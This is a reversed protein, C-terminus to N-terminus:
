GASAQVQDLGHLFTLGPWRVIMSSARQGMVTGRGDM